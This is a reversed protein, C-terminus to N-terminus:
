IRKGHIRGSGSWDAVRFISLRSNKEDYPFQAGGNVLAHPMIEPRYWNLRVGDQKYAYNLKELYVAIQKREEQFERISSAIFISVDKM